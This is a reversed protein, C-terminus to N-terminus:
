EILCLRWAIAVAHTTSNADLAVRAQRLHTKVTERGIGLRDAVEAMGCGRAVLQLCDLARESPRSPAHTHAMAELLRDLAGLAIDDRAKIAAEWQGWHHAALASIESASAAVAM